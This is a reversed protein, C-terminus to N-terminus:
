LRVEATIVDYPARVGHEDRALLGARVLATVDAHVNKYDRDLAISLARVDKAPHAHVARLLDFRRPTLVSVLGALDEFSLHTEPTRGDKGARHWADIFRAGVDALSEGHHLTAAKRAGSGITKGTM